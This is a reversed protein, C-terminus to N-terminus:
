EIIMYMAECNIIIENPESTDIDTIQVKGYDAIVTVEADDNCDKIWRILEKKTM